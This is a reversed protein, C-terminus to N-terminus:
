IVDRAYSIYKSVVIYGVHALIIHIKKQIDSILFWDVIRSGVDLLSDHGRRVLVEEDHHGECAVAELHVSLLCDHDIGQVLSLAVIVAHVSLLVDSVYGLLIAVRISEPQERTATLDEACVSM